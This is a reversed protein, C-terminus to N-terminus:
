PRLQIEINEKMKQLKSVRALEEKEQNELLESQFRAQM